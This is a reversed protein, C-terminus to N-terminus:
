GITTSRQYKLSHIRDSWIIQTQFILPKCCSTRCVNPNLYKNQELFEIGKHKNSCVVVKSIMRLHRQTLAM